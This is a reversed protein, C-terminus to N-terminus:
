VERDDILHDLERARRGFKATRILELTYEDLDKVLLVERRRENPLQQPM